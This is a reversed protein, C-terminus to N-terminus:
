SPVNRSRAHRSWASTMHSRPLFFCTWRLTYRLAIFNVSPSPSGCGAVAALRSRVTTIEFAGIECGTARPRSRLLIQALRHSQAPPIPRCPGAAHLRWFGRSLAAALQEAHAIDGWPSAVALPHCDFCLRRRRATPGRYRLVRALRAAPTTSLPVCHHVLGKRSPPPALVPFLVYGATRVVVDGQSSSGAKVAYLKGTDETCQGAPRRTYQVDAQEVVGAGM